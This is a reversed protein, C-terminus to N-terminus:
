AGFLRVLWSLFRRMGSQRDQPPQDEVDDAPTGTPIGDDPAVVPEDPAAPVVPADTEEQPVDADDADDATVPARSKLAPYVVIVARNFETGRYALIVNASASIPVTLNEGELLYYDEQKSTLWLKAKGNESLRSKVYLEKTIKSPPVKVTIGLYDGAAIKDITVPAQSDSLAITVSRLMSGRFAGSPTVTVDSVPRAIAVTRDASAVLVGDATECEIRWVYTGDEYDAAFGLSRGKLVENYTARKSVNGDMVLRCERITAGSDISFGFRGGTPDLAEGTPSQIIISDAFAPAAVICLAILVLLPAHRPAM